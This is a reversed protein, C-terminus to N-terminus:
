KHYFAPTCRREVKVWMLGNIDVNYGSLICFELTKKLLVNNTYLGGDEGSTHTSNGPHLVLRM